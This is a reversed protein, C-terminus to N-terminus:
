LILSNDWSDDSSYNIEKKKRKKLKQNGKLIESDSMEDFSYIDDKKEFIVEESEDSININIKIPKITDINTVQIDSEYINNTELTSDNRVVVIEELEPLEHYRHKRFLQFFCDFCSM